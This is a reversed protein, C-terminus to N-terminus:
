VVGEKTIYSVVTTNDMAVLVIQDRCLHEFSKLDLFVAKLELFNIHLRSETDSWMRRATSDKLHQAGVKTQPTQIPRTKLPVITSGLTCKERRGVLRSTLPSIITHSHSEGLDRSCALTAESVM